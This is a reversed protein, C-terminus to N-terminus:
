RRSNIFDEFSCACGGQVSVSVSKALFAFFSKIRDPNDCEIPPNKSFGRLYQAIDKEMHPLAMIFVTLDGANQLRMLKEQIDNVDDTAKGDSFIVLWPKYRKIRYADYEKIRGDLVELCKEIGSSLYTEGDTNGFLQPVARNEVSDFGELLTAKNNFTVIACECSDCACDDDLIAEYFKKIGDEVEEIYSVGESTMRARENDVIIEQSNPSASVKGMSEDVFGMSGSMDICFCVPLRRAKHMFNLNGYKM